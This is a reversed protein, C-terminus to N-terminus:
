CRNSKISVLKVLCDCKHTRAYSITQKLAANKPIGALRLKHAYDLYERFNKGPKFGAAELDRGMVYPRSMYEKYIEYREFLFDRNAGAEPLGSGEGLIQGFSDSLAICILGVPDVSDDFMQNTKKISSKASAMTNPKMHLKSMNTAYNIIAKENTLKGLFKKIIPLGKVEHGYAHVAGNVYETAVIKGFDHTLASIMFSLKQSISGDDRYRVASDLVMMTHNWVDGEAHYKPNQEVGILQRMEEFWTSLQGMERLTEFFISPKNAKLLAKSLEGMVREPALTGLDMNKCLEITEPAIAFEFRSAFQAGRLVRLPDEAFTVDNVHRIIRKELDQVGGWHDVIEGTLVNEMLANITFDRRQSASKTGIFPDVFVDFDKHGKGRNTEKRPMAIDVDYGKIGYIGFSEGMSVREGFEDLVAELQAPKVGHVEIDIDKNEIRLIKDRVYGGVYYTSGGLEAVRGAIKLAIETNKDM